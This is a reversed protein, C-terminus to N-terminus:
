LHVPDSPLTTSGGNGTIVQSHFETLTAAMDASDIRTLDVVHTGLEYRSALEDAVAMAVTTKGIGAPGTVTFPLSAEVRSLDFASADRLASGFVSWAYVAGISFQLLLAAAVLFWRNGEPPAM